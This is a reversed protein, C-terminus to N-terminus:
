KFEAGVESDFLNLPAYQSHYPHGDPFSRVVPPMLGTEADMVLRLKSSTCCASFLNHYSDLWQILTALMHGQHTKRIHILTAFVQKNVAKFVAKTSPRVLDATEHMAFCAVRFVGVTDDAEARVGVVAQFITSCTFHIHTSGDSQKFFSGQMFHTGEIARRVVNELASMEERAENPVSRRKTRQEDSCGKPFVSAFADDFSSLSDAGRKRIRGLWEEDPGDHEASGMESKKRAIGGDTNIQGLSENLHPDVALEKLRDMARMVSETSAALGKGPILEESRPHALQVFASLISHVGKKSEDLVALMEDIKQLSLQDHKVSEQSM